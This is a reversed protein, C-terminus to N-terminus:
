LYEGEDGLVGVVEGLVVLFVLQGMFKDFAYELDEIEEFGFAFVLIKEGEDLLLHLGFEVGNEIFVGYVQSFEEGVYAKDGLRASNDLNWCLLLPNERFGDDFLRHLDFVLYRGSETKIIDLPSPCTQDSLALM